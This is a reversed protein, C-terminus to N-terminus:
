QSALVASPDFDLTASFRYRVTPPADGVQQAERQITQLTGHTFVTDHQDSTLLSSFTLGVEDISPSHGQIRIGNT